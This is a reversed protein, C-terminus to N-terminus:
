LSTLCFCKEQLVCHEQLFCEGSSNTVGTHDSLYPSASVSSSETEEQAQIITDIKESNGCGTLIISSTVAAIFMKMRM